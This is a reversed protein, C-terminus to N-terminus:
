APKTFRGNLWGIIAGMIGVVIASAAIDILIGTTDIINMQGHLLFDFFITMLLGIIAGTSFGSGASNISAKSFVYALLFGISLSSVAMAWLLMNEPGRMLGEYVMMHSEMTEALLIGWVLWGLLFNVIGGTIGGILIKKSDM